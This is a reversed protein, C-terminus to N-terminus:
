KVKEINETNVYFSFAANRNVKTRELNYLTIATTSGLSTSAIFILLANLKPNIKLLVQITLFSVLMSILISIWLSKIPVKAETLTNIAREIIPIDVYEGSRVKSRIELAEQRTMITNVKVPTM